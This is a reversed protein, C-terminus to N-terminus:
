SRCLNPRVTTMPVIDVFAKASCCSQKTWPGCGICLYSYQSSINKKSFQNSKSSTKGLCFVIMGKEPLNVYCLSISFDKYAAESLCRARMGFVLGPRGVIRATAACKRFDPPWRWTLFFRLNIIRLQKHRLICVKFHTYTHAFFVM